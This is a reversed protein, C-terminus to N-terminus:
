PWLPPVLPCACRSNSHQSPCLFLFARPQCGQPDSFPPSELCGSFPNVRAAVQAPPMHFFSGPAPVIVPYSLGSPNRVHLPSGQTAVGSSIPQPPVRRRLVRKPRIRCPFPHLGPVQLSLVGPPVNARGRAYGISPCTRIRCALGFSPTVGNPLTTPTHRPQQAFM